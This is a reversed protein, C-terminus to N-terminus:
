GDERVNQSRPVPLLRVSCHSDIVIFINGVGRGPKAAEDCISRKGVSVDVFSANRIDGGGVDPFAFLGIKECPDAAPRRREAKDSPRDDLTSPTTGM